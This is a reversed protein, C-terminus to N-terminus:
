SIEPLQISRPVYPAPKAWGIGTKVEIQSPEAADEQDPIPQSASPTIDIAPL